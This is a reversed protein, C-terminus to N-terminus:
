KIQLILESLKKIAKERASLMCTRGHNSVEDRCIDPVSDRLLCDGCPLTEGQKLIEIIEQIKNKM